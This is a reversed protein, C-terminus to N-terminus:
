LPALQIVFEGPLNPVTVPQIAIKFGTAAARVSHTGANVIRFDFQGSDNTTSSLGLDVIDVLAGALGVANNDVVRGAFHILTEAPAGFGPMYDTSHSTVIFDSIDSFVPVSITVTVTLSAKLKSGLSSWFEALNKLADPHLTVMPLPPDQGILSGQLFNPPITPYHSLVRLVQALLRHEQLPLDPGGFPWATVLYSCALRLAAPHTIIQDGV